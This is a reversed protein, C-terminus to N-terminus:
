RFIYIATGSVTQEDYPIPVNGSMVIGGVRSSPKGIIIGNAGVAAVQNKLESVAFDTSQQDNWGNASSANVFGIVEYNEEPPTAFM